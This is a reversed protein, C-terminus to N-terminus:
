NNNRQSLEVNLVLFDFTYKNLGKIAKQADMRSEYTVYAFGKARGTRKDRALYTRRIRGVSGFLDQIDGETVTENLNTVRVTCGEDDMRQGGPRDRNQGVRPRDDNGAAADRGVNAIVRNMFSTAGIAKGTLHHLTLQQIIQTKMKQLEQEEEQSLVPKDEEQKNIARKNLFMIHCDEGM